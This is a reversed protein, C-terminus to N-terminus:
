PSSPCAATVSTTARALATEVTTQVTSTFTPLYLNLWTALLGCTGLSVNSSQPTTAITGFTATEVGPACAFAASAAYSYEATLTAVCDMGSLHADVDSTATVTGDLRHADRLLTPSWTLAVACGPAQGGCLQASCVSVGSAGLVSPEPEPVCSSAPLGAKVEAALAASLDTCVGNCLAGECLVCTAPTTGDASGCATLAVLAALAASSMLPALRAGRPLSM